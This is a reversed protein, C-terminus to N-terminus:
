TIKYIIRDTRQNPSHYAGHAERLLALDSPRRQADKMPLNAWEM